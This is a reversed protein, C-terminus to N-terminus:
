SVLLVDLGAVSRMSRELTGEMNVVSHHKGLIILDADVIEIVAHMERSVDGNKIYINEKSIPYASVIFELEKTDHKQELEVVFERYIDGWYALSYPNYEVNPHVYVLSITAGLSFALDTANKILEADSHEFDIALLINRYKM